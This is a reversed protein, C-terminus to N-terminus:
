PEGLYGALTRSWAPAETARLLAQNVPELLPSGAPLTFGVYESENRMPTVLINGHGGHRAWYRLVADHHVVAGVIGHQLADLMEPVTAFTVPHIGSRELYEAAASAELAGVPVRQLHGPRVRSAQLHSLTIESTFTATLVTVLLIGAIMGAMGVLRGPVTRPTKDGYGVTTLTATAWWLASWVGRVPKGEFHETNRRRELMWVPVAMLLAVLGMVALVHLLRPSFVVALVRSWSPRVDPVVALGLTTALYPRSFDVRAEREPTAVLPAIVVDLAGQALDQVLSERPRAVLETQRGLLGAVTDWLEVAVGSWQGGATRVTFPPAEAIGVRLTAQAPGATGSAQALAVRAAVVVILWSPAGWRRLAGGVGRSTEDM